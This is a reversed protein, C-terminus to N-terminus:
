LHPQEEYIFSIMMKVIRLKTYRDKIRDIDSQADEKTEYRVVSLSMWKNSLPNWKEIMHFSKM